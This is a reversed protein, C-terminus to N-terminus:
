LFVDTSSLKNGRTKEDGQIGYIESPRFGFHKKFSNSFYAVDSYGSQWAIYRIDGKGKRLLKLAHEMRLALMYKAFGMGTVERFRRCFYAENYGFQVSVERATIKEAFHENVYDLVALFNGAIKVSSKVMAVRYQGLLGIIEYIMAEALLPHHQIKEELLAVLKKFSSLLLENEVMTPYTVEGKIIPLLHKNSAMTHNCFKEVDFMITHYEVGSDGAIGGHRRRPTYVAIQGPLLERHGEDDHIMLSGSVIWILEMRAHWHVPFCMKGAGSCWHVHKIASDGYEIPVLEEYGELM